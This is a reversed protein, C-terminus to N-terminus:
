RCKMVSWESKMILNHRILSATNTQSSDCVCVNFMSALYLRYFAAYAVNDYGSLTHNQIIFM